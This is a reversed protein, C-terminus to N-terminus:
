EHESIEKSIKVLINKLIDLEESKFPIEDKKLSSFDKRLQEGSYGTLIGFSESMAKDTIDKNFLKNEQLYKMLILTQKASIIPKNQESLVPKRTNTSQKEQIDIPIYTELYKLRESLLTYIRLYQKASKKGYKNPSDIALRHQYHAYDRFESLPIIIETNDIDTINNYLERYLDEFQSELMFQSGEFVFDYKEISCCETLRKKYSNFLETLEKKNM